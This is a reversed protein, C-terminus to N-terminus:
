RVDSLRSALEESNVVPPARWGCEPCREPTARLDYHCRPCRGDHRRRESVDALARRLLRLVRFLLFAFVPIALTAAIRGSYLCIWRETVDVGPLSKFRQVDFPPAGLQGVPPVFYRETRDVKNFWLWSQDHTPWSAQTLWGWGVPVPAFPAKGPIGGAPENRVRLHIGDEDLMWIRVSLGDRKSWTVPGRVRVVTWSALFLLSGLTSLAIGFILARRLWKRIPNANEPSDVM